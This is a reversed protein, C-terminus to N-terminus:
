KNNSSSVADQLRTDISKRKQMGDDSDVHPSHDDAALEEQGEVEGALMDAVGLYFTAPKFKIKNGMMEAWKYRAPNIWGVLDLHSVDESEDPVTPLTL